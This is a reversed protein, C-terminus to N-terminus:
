RASAGGPAAPVLGYRAMVSVLAARDPPAGAHVVSAVDLFYQAGIDPSLVILARALGSFPNSFGHVTGKPSPSM